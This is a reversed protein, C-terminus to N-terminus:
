PVPRGAFRLGPPHVSGAPPAQEAIGPCNQGSPVFLCRADPPVTAERQVPDRTGVPRLGPCLRTGPPQKRFKGFKGFMGFMGYTGFKGFSLCTQLNPAATRLCPRVRGPIGPFGSWPAQRRIRGPLRLFGPGPQEQLELLEQLGPRCLRKRCAQRLHRAFARGRVPRERPCHFLRWPLIQRHERVCWPRCCCKGM